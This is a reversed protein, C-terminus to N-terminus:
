NKKQRNLPVHYARVEGSFLKKERFFIFYLFILRLILRYPTRTYSVRLFAFAKDTISQSLPQLMVECSLPGVEAPDKKM